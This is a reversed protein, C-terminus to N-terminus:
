QQLISLRKRRRFGYKNATTIVTGMMVYLKSPVRSWKWFAQLFTGPHTGGSLRAVVDADHPGGQGADCPGTRCQPSRDQMAPVQGADRPGTRCRLSRNHMAPVQGADHPGANHPVQGADHPGTTCRPARCRPSRCLVM